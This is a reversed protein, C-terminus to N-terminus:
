RCASSYRGRVCDRQSRPVAGLELCAGLIRKFIKADTTILAYDVQYRTEDPQNWEKKDAVCDTTRYLKSYKGKEYELAFLWGHFYEGTDANQVCHAATLLINWGIFAASCVFDGQSTELFLKGVMDFPHKNM